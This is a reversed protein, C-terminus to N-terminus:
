IINNSKRGRSEEGRSKMRREKRERRICYEIM